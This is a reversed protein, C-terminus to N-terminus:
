RLEGSLAGILSIVGVSDLTGDNDFFKVPMTSHISKIGQRSLALHIATVDSFGAIWKKSSRVRGWEIYDFVRVAGYGGKYMLIAKVNPDDIMSMFEGAREIDTAGFSNDHQSLLHKGYKVAFGLSDLLKTLAATDSQEAVKTSVSIIGITDGRQLSNPTITNRTHKQPIKNQSYLDVSILTLAAILTLKLKLM